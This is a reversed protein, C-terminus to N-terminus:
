QIFLIPECHPSNDMNASKDVPVGLSITTLQPLSTQKVVVMVVPGGSIYRRRHCSQDQWVSWQGQPLNNVHDHSKRCGISSLISKCTNTSSYDQSVRWECSKMYLWSVKYVTMAAMYKHLVNTHKFHMCYQEHHQGEGLVNVKNINDHIQSCDTSWVIEPHTCM